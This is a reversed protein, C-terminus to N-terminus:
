VEDYPAPAWLGACNVIGALSGLESEVRDHFAAFSDRSAADCAAGLVGLESALAAVREDSLDTVAVRAGAAVLLEAISRGIGGTAGTLIVVEGELLPQAGAAAVTAQLTM